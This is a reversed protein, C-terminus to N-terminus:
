FKWGLDELHNVMKIEAREVALGTDSVVDRFGYQSENHLAVAVDSLRKRASSLENSALVLQQNMEARTM